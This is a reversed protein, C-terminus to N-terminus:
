GFFAPLTVNYGWTVTDKIENVSFGTGTRVNKGWILYNIPTNQKDPSENKM